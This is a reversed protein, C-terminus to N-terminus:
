MPLKIIATTGVNMKSEFTLTGKHNTIIQQSVILGLGNGDSKSTYFPEFLHQINDDAIGFGTDIIKITMFRDKSDFLEVNLKGGNPMAEASNKFLNVFVQKLNSAIGQIPPLEKEYNTEITICTLTGSSQMTTLIDSILGQIHVDQFHGVQPKSLVLFQGVIIDMQEIEKMVLEMHNDPLLGKRHNLSLFGQITTLPNRIEHAISAALQGIASLKENKRSLEEAHKSLTINRTISAIAVIHGSDDSIPSATISVFVTQGSKTIMVSEYGTVSQGSVVTALNLEYESQLHEPFLQLRHGIIDDASWGFMTEFAINIQIVHGDLDMIHIADATSNFFSELSQKTQQLEAATEVLESTYRSLNSGMTNIQDALLGLEDKNKLTLDTHFQNKAIANVKTMIKTLPTILFGAIFRSSIITLLVLGAAIMCHNWLQKYIDEFLIKHAFVIGIVYPQKNQIPIFVRTYTNANRDFSTSILTNSTLATQIGKIDQELDTYEYTGFTIDRVDLNQVPIGQKLKIIKEKGFFAPDFGTIEILEANEQLLKEIIQNANDLYGQAFSQNTNIITNIMYNTKGSYYYGWKNIKTPDTVAFNIPGSYFHQEKEGHEVSIPSMDMVENMATNWYDWSKSHLNVENPNSSLLAMLEHESDRVWLTIDALNLQEKLEVLQETTVNEINPDLSKEVSVATAKLTKAIEKEMNKNTTDILQISIALQNAITDIQQEM